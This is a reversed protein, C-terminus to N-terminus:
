STRGSPNETELRLLRKMITIGSSQVDKVEKQVESFYVDYTDFQKIRQVWGIGYTRHYILDGLNHM